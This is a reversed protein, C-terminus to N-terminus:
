SQENDGVRVLVLVAHSREGMVELDEEPNYGVEGLGRTDLFRLVPQNQPYDFVDSSQTCPRFGNGVEVEDYGTLKQVVSTKGVGTKGLLWLVPLGVGSEQWTKKLAADSPPNIVSEYIRRATRKIM